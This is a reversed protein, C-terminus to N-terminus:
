LNRRVGHQTSVALGLLMPPGPMVMVVFMAITAYWWDTMIM